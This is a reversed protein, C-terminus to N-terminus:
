APVGATKRPVRMLRQKPRAASNHNTVILAGIQHGRSMSGGVSGTQKVLAQRWNEPRMMQGRVFLPTRARLWTTLAHRVRQEADEDGVIEPYNQGIYAVAQIIDGDHADAIGPDGHQPYAERTMTLTWILHDSAAEYEDEGHQRRWLNIIREAAQIASFDGAVGNGGYSSHGRTPMVGVADLARKIALMGEEEAQVGVKYRYFPSPKKQNNNRKGFRRAAERYPMEEVWVRFIYDPDTQQKVLVRTGGDIPHVRRKYKGDTLLAAEIIGAQEEDWPDFDRLREPTPERQIARIIYLDRARM